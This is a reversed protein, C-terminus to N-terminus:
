AYRERIAKTLQKSGLEQWQALDNKKVADDQLDAYVKAETWHIDAVRRFYDCDVVQKPNTSPHYYFYVGSVIAVVLFYIITILINKKM